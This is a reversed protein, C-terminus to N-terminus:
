PARGVADAAPVAHAAAKADAPTPDGLTDAYAYSNWSTHNDGNGNRDSDTYSDRNRYTFAHVDSYANADRGPM